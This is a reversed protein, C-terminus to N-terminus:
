HNDLCAVIGITRVFSLRPHFTENLSGTGLGVVMTLTDEVPRWFGLPVITQSGEAVM